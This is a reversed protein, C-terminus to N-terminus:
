KLFNRDFNSGHITVHCNTCVSDTGFRPPGGPAFGLHFQPVVVHCSYCLEGVKQHTLLHRNPSGHPAHCAICGDVRSAAHEFLFPGDQAAHCEACVQDKFGGLRGLTSDGHPDHCSSCGISNEHLRHRETFGFEAFVEEHCGLCSRSAEGIRGLGAPLAAKATETQAQHVTHCDDCALGTRGHASNGSVHVDRHCTTCADSRAAAPEDRFANINGSGPRAAHEAGEGHCATCATDLAGHVSGATYGQHCGTCSNDGAAFSAPAFAAMLLIAMVAVLRGM